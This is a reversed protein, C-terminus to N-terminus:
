LFLSKRKPFLVFLDEQFKPLLKLNEVTPQQELCLRQRHLILQM